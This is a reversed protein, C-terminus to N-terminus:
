VCFSFATDFVKCILCFKEASPKIFALCFSLLFFIIAAAAHESDM